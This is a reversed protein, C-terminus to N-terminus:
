PMNAAASLEGFPGMRDPLDEANAMPSWALGLHLWQGFKHGPLMSRVPGKAFRFDWSSDPPASLRRPLRWQGADVHIRSTLVQNRRRCLCGLRYSVAEVPEMDGTSPNSGLTPGGGGSRLKMALRAIWKGGRDYDPPGEQCRFRRLSSWGTVGWRSNHGCWAGSPILNPKEALNDWPQNAASAEWRRKMAMGGLM